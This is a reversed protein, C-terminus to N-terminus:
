QTTTRFQPILRWYIVTILGIWLAALWGIVGDYHGVLYAFPASSNNDTLWRTLQIVLVWGAHIGVCWGIHGSHERILALLIGCFLLATFSDIQHWNFADTFAHTFLFWATSSNFVVDAPLVGPKLFHVAAYLLASGIIAARIGERARIASYLAGRFFTEEMLGILLGGLLAQTLKPLFEAWFTMPPAPIRITLALLALVVILLMASGIVSGYIFSRWWIRRTIDYGLAARNTLALASLLPWIGILILLQTLRSM